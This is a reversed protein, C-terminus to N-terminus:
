CDQALHDLSIRGLDIAIGAFYFHIATNMLNDRNTVMHDRHNTSDPRSPSASFIRRSNQLALASRIQNAFEFTQRMRNPCATCGPASPIASYILPKERM